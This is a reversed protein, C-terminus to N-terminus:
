SKNSRNVSSLISSCCAHLTVGVVLKSLSVILMFLTIFDWGGCVSRQQWWVGLGPRLNADKGAAISQPETLNAQARWASEVQPLVRSIHVGGAGHSSFHARDSRVGAFRATEVTRWWEDYGWSWIKARLEASHSGSQSCGSRRRSLKPVVLWGSGVCAALCRAM